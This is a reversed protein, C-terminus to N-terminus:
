RAAEFEGSRNVRLHGMKVLVMTGYLNRISFPHDGWRRRFEERGLTRYDQFIAEVGGATKLRELYEMEHRSSDQALQLLWDPLREPIVARKLLKELIYLRRIDCYGSKDLDKLFAETDDLEQSTRPALPQKTLLERLEREHRFAEAAMAPSNEADLLTDFYIGSKTFLVNLPANRGDVMKAM